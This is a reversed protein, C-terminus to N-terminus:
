LIQANTFTGTLTEEFCGRKEEFDRLSDLTDSYRFKKRFEDFTLMNVCWKLKLWAMFGIKIKKLKEFTKFIDEYITGGGQM